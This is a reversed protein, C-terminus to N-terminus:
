EGDDIDNNFEGNFKEGQKGGDGHVIYDQEEKSFPTFRRLKNREKLKEVVDLFEPYEKAVDVYEEEVEGAVVGLPLNEEGGNNGDEEVINEMEHEMGDYRKDQRAWASKLRKQQAVNNRRKVETDLWEADRREFPTLGHGGYDEVGPIRDKKEEDYSDAQRFAVVADDWCRRGADARGKWYWARAQLGDIKLDRALVEAVEATRGAKSYARYWEKVMKSEESVNIDRSYSYPDQWTRWETRELTHATRWLLSSRMLLQKVNLIKLRTAIEDKDRLYYAMSELPIHPFADETHVSVEGSGISSGISPLSSHSTSPTSPALYLRYEPHARLFPEFAWDFATKGSPLIAGSPEPLGLLARPSLINLPHLRRANNANGINGDDPIGDSESATGIASRRRNTGSASQTANGAQQRQWRQKLDLRLNGDGKRVREQRQWEERQRVWPDKYEERLDHKPKPPEVDRPELAPREWTNVIAKVNPSPNFPPNPTASPRGNGSGSNGNSPQESPNSM